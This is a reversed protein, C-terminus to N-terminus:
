RVDDYRRRLAEFLTHHPILAGQDAAKCGQQVQRSKWRDDHDPHTDKTM